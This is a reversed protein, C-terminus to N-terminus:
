SINLMIDVIHFVETRTLTFQEENMLIYVFEDKHVTGDFQRADTKFLQEGNLEDLEETTRVEEFLKRLSNLYSNSRIDYDKKTTSLQLSQRLANAFRSRPDDKGPTGMNGFLGALPNLKMEEEKKAQDEEERKKSEEELIKKFHEEQSAQNM